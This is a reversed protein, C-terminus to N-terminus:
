FNCLNPTIRYPVPDDRLVSSDPEPTVGRIAIARERIADLLRLKVGIPLDALKRRHAAKSEHIRQLDPNM